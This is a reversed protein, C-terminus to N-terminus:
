GLGPLFALHMLPETPVRALGLGLLVLVTPGTLSTRAPRTRGEPTSVPQAAHGLSGFPCPDTKRKIFRHANLARYTSNSPPM